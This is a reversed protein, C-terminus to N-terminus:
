RALDRTEFLPPSARRIASGIDGLTGELLASSAVVDIKATEIDFTAITPEVYSGEVRISLVDGTGPVRRITFATSPFSWPPPLRNVYKEDNEDTTEPARDRPIGYRDHDWMWQGLLLLLKGGGIDICIAPDMSSHLGEWQVVQGSRVRIEEVVAASKAVKARKTERRLHPALTGALAAFLAVTLGLGVFNGLRVADQSVFSAVWGGFTWLLWGAPVCVCGWNALGTGSADSM